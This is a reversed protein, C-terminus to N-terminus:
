SYLNWNSDSDILITRQLTLQFWSLLIPIWNNFSHCMRLCLWSSSMKGYCKRSGLQVRSVKEDMNEVKSYAMFPRPHQREPCWCKALARRATQYYHASNSSHNLKHIFQRHLKLLTSDVHFTLNSNKAKCFTLLSSYFQALSGSNSGLNPPILAM